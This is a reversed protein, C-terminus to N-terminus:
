NGDIVFGKLFTPGNIPPTERGLAVRAIDLEAAFRLEPRELQNAMARTREFDTNALMAMTQCVGVVVNALNSGGPTIWEGQNLYRIEFGDLVTAANVLENTKAVIPQLMEFSRKADLSSYDRILELRAMMENLGPPM